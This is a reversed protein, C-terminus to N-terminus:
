KGGLETLRQVLQKKRRFVTERTEYVNVEFTSLYFLESQVSARIDSMKLKRAEELLIETGLEDYRKLQKEVDKEYAIVADVDDAFAKGLNDVGQLPKGDRLVPEGLKTHDILSTEKVALAGYLADIDADTPRQRKAELWKASVTPRALIERIHRKIEEESGGPPLGTTGSAEDLTLTVRHEKNFVNVYATVPVDKEYVHHYFAAGKDAANGKLMWTTRKEYEKLRASRRAELAELKKLQQGWGASAVGAARGLNDAEQKLQAFTVPANGKDVVEPIPEFWAPRQFYLTAAFSVFGLGIILNLFALLKGILTM